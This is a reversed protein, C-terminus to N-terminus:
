LSKVLASLGPVGKLGALVKMTTGKFEEATAPQYKGGLHASLFAETAAFFSLRNPERAFGHGEDSYLIYSVPIKRAQMAKVIQDSEVQTVRPDNAGQGILLPRVIKDAKFLPSRSELGKKGEGSTWDGVRVKLVAEMPRWYPPMNEFLTILSSPGVIDVGCTFQEPTFTLGVLTTYGGYSGGGICVKDKPAIGQGVVHTVADILDDHM